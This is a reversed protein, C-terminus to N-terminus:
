EQDEDFPTPASGASNGRRMDDLRGKVVEVENRPFLFRGDGCRFSGPFYGGELWNHITELSSINLIAGVQDSTLVEESGSSNYITM